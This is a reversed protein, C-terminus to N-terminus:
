TAVATHIPCLSQLVFVRVSLARGQLLDVKTTSKSGRGMPLRDLLTEFDSVLENRETSSLAGEFVYFGCRWYTELIRDDVRGNGDLILSGSNGLTHARNRGEVYYQDSM